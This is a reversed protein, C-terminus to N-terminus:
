AGCDECVPEVRWEPCRAAAAIVIQPNDQLLRMVNAQLAENLQEDSM